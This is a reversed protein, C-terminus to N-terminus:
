VHVASIVSSVVSKNQTFFRLLLAATSVMAIVAAMQFVVQYQYIRLTRRHLSRDHYNLFLDMNNRDKFVSGTPITDTPALNLPRAIQRLWWTEMTSYVVLPILVMAYDDFNALQGQKSAFIKTVQPAEALALSQNLVTLVIVTATSVLVWVFWAQLSQSTAQVDACVSQHLKMATLMDPANFLEDRLKIIRTRVAAVRLYVIACFLFSLNSEILDCALAAVLYSSTMFHVAFFNWLLNTLVLTLSITFFCALVLNAHYTRTNSSYCSPQNPQMDQIACMASGQFSNIFHRAFYWCGCIRFFQCITIIVNVLSQESASHAVLDYYMHLGFSFCIASLSFLRQFYFSAKSFMSSDEDLPMLGNLTVLVWMISIHKGTCIQGKNATEIDQDLRKEPLLPQCQEANHDEAM